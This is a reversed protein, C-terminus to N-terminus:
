PPKSVAKSIALPLIQYNSSPPFLPQRMGGGRQSEVDETGTVEVWTDAPNDVRSRPHDCLLLVAWGYDGRSHPLGRHHMGPRLPNGARRRLRKYFREYTLGTNLM